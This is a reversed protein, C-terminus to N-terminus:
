LRSLLPNGWCQLKIYNCVLFTYWFVTRMSFTMFMYRRDFLKGLGWLIKTSGHFSFRKTSSKTVLHFYFCRLQTISHMLTSREFADNNNCNGFCWQQFAYYWCHHGGKVLMSAKSPLALMLTAVFPPGEGVWYSLVILSKHQSLFLWKTWVLFM